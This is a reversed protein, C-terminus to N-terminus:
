RSGGKVPKGSKGRSSRHGGNSQAEVKKRRAGGTKLKILTGQGEGREELEVVVGRIALSRSFYSKLGEWCDFSVFYTETAAYRNPDNPDLPKFVAMYGSPNDAPTDKFFYPLYRVREGVQFERWEGRIHKNRDDVPRSSFSLICVLEGGPETETIASL